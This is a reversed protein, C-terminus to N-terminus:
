AEKAAKPQTAAGKKVLKAAMVPHVLYKKNATMSYKGTGIVEVKEQLNIVKDKAM